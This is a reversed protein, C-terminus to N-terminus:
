APNSIGWQDAHVLNRFSKAELTLKTLIQVMYTHPIHRLVQNWEASNKKETTDEIVHDNLSLRHLAHTPMHTQTPLYPTHEPILLAPTLNGRLQTLLSSRAYQGYQSASWEPM